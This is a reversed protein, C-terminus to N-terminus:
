DMIFDDSLRAKGTSKGVVGIKLGYRLLQRIAALHSLLVLPVICCPLWIFPFYLVGVNPQEFAFKQFPYPASLIANIVINLLLALCLFNWFLIVNKGLTKKIFGFYYIFPATLGSFIDFNRGEFTMLEPIAKNMFLWLLVIEVPVRVIHLLTLMRIDLHDIYKRGQPTAFMGIIFLLPPLVLLLFRPPLTDTVTYFGTLGIFSQLALWSVLIFLTTKSKYAAKYFLWVTLVTTLVFVIPIYTPLNEM